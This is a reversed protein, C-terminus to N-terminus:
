TMLSFLLNLREEDAQWEEWMERTMAYHLETREEGMTEIYSRDTFQYQFGCKEAVRRSRQNFDFCGCWITELELVEFGYRLVERVAEPMLGKGWYDPSLAYGIEEDPGPLETRHRGVFGVSGIVRGSEKEMLAFVHPQAFITRIVELTEELSKHPLWGAPPGVRADKCYAFTDAADRETFPRLILRETELRM